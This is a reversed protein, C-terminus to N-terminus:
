IGRVHMYVKRLLWTGFLTGFLVVLVTGLHYWNNALNAFLDTVPPGDPIKPMKDSHLNIM